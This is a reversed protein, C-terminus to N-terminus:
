FRNDDQKIFWAARSQVKEIEWSHGKRYIPRMESFFNKLYPRVLSIYIYAQRKSKESASSFNRRICGLASNAKKTKNAM